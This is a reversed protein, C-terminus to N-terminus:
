SCYMFFLKAKFCSHLLDEPPVFENGLRTSYKALTDKCTLRSTDKHSACPASVFTYGGLHEDM